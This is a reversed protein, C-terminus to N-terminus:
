ARFLGRTGFLASVEEVPLDQYATVRDVKV